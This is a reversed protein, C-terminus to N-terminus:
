NGREDIRGETADSIGKTSPLPVVVVLIQDPYGLRAYESRALTHLRPKVDPDQSVFQALGNWAIREFEYVGSFAAPPPKV